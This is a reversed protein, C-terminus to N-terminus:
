TNLHSEVWRQFLRQHAVKEVGVDRFFAEDLFYHGDPGKKCYIDVIQEVTDFNMSIRTSYEVLQGSGDDVSSLWTLLDWSAWPRSGKAIDGREREGLPRHASAAAALSDGGLGTAKLLANRAANTIWASPNRVNADVAGILQAAEAVQLARLADVATKDLGLRLIGAELVRQPDASSGPGLSGAGNVPVGFGGSGATQNRFDRIASTIFASPNRITGRSEALRNLLHMAHELPITQLAALSTDDVGLDRAMFEAREAMSQQMQQHARVPDAPMAGFGMQPFQPPAMAKIYEAPNRVDYNIQELLGLAMEVPMARLLDRAEADLRFRDAMVDVRQAPQMCQGSMGSMGAQAHKEQLKVAANFVYASPNRVTDKKRQLEGLIELASEPPVEHLVGSAREDVELKRILAEVQEELGRRFSVADDGDAGPVGVAGMSGGMNGTELNVGLRKRAATTVFASPNRVNADISNMIDMAQDPPVQLLAGLATEDLNLREVARQVDERTVSPDPPPGPPPPPFPPPAISPPPMMPGGMPTSENVRFDPPLGPPMGPPPPGPPPPGPAVGPPVGAPPSHFTRCMPDGGAAMAARFGPSNIEKVCANFVYASPNRVQNRNKRLEGLIDYARELPVEHLVGAARDDLGMHIIIAEVEQEVQARSAGPPLRGLHGPFPPAVGGPVMPQDPHLRKAATTVFASPNRVGDDISDLIERAEDPLLSNLCSVATEDLNFKRQADEISEPGLLKRAANFAFASLNRVDTSRQMDEMIRFADAPQLARMARAARDDLDFRRIIREVEAAEGKPPSRSSFGRRRSGSRSRSHRRGRSRRRSRSRSQSRGMDPADPKAFRRAATTAFASKNKVGETIQDLIGMAAEPPLARMDAIAAADLDLRTLAAEVDAATSGLRPAFSQAPPYSPYGGPQPHQKQYNVCAQFLFASPNRVDRGHLQSFIDYLSDPPIERAINRAREDANYKDLLAECRRRLEARSEGRADPFGPGVTGRGGGGVGGPMDLSRIKSMVFASPNRVGGDLSRLIDSAVELPVRHLAENAVDDLGLRNIINELEHEMQRLPMDGFSPPGCPGFGSCPAMMGCGGMRPDMPGGMPGMPNMPGMPGRPGGM